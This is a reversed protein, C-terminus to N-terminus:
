KPIGRLLPISDYPPISTVAPEQEFLMIFPKESAVKENRWLTSIGVLEIDKPLRVLNQKLISISNKRPHGIMIAVGNKQAYMVAASFQKQIDVISDSDDLFIHRELAKVGFERATKAAVSSGITKSDLFFLQNEKLVKMLRQMTLKDSTAGSGMHNNLGLAYPVQERAIAIRERIKEESDGINIGGPEIAQKSKPEMPLHILIDRKQSYAEFARTKAYPAVPIIAVSVAKPLALIESDEKTKYGIDDIVIALKGAYALPLFMYFVQLFIVFFLRKKYQKLM